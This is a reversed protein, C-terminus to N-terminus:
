KTICMTKPKIEQYCNVASRIRPNNIHDSKVHKMQSLVGLNIECLRQDERISM